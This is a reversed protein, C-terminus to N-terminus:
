SMLYYNEYYFQLLYGKNTRSPYKGCLFPVLAFMIQNMIRKTNELMPQQTEGPFFMNNDFENM